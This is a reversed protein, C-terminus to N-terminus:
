ENGEGGLTAEPVIVDLFQRYHGFVSQLSSPIRISLSRSVRSFASKHIRALRSGPEFTVMLLSSCGWFCSDGLETVSAPICISSLMACHLFAYTEISSLRSGSEFTVSSLSRCSHFCSHAIREVSSPICISSLQDCYQFASGGIRSVISGSEFTVSSVTKCRCFCGEELTEVGKRITVIPDTGFYRKVITGRFDMLFHDAVKFTLNGDGISIDQLNAEALAWPDLQQIASPLCISL